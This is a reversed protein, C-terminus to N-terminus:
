AEETHGMSSFKKIRAAIRKQEDMDRWKNKEFDNFLNYVTTNLVVQDYRKEKVINYREIAIENSSELAAHYITEFILKNMEKAEECSFSLDLQMFVDALGQVGIGIPRHRM